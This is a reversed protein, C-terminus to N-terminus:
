KPSLCSECMLLSRDRHQIGYSYNEQNRPQESEDPDVGDACEDV